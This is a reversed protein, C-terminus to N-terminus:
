IPRMTLAFTYSTKEGRLLGPSTLGDGAFAVLTAEQGIKRFYRRVGSAIAPLNTMYCNMIPINATNGLSTGSFASPTCGPGIFVITDKGFARIALRIALEEGCGQCMGIGRSQLEEGLYEFVPRGEAYTLVGGQCGEICKPDGDCKDCKYSKRLKPDYYVGGYPCGLTCLGCGM